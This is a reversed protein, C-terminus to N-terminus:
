RSSGAVFGCIMPIGQAYVAREIPPAAQSM